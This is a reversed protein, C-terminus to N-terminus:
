CSVVLDNAVSKVGSVGCAASGAADRDHSTPVSGALTVNGDVASVEIHEADVDADRKVTKEVADILAIPEAGTTLAINNSVDQVGTLYRVAEHAAKREFEWNAVGTLTVRGNEITAHVTDPVWVHWGLANVVATAIEADPRFHTGPLTVELEEAIALVGSVRQAAQEAAKKQAYYPVSGSLTVIGDRAAVSIEASTVTPESQLEATVDNKLEADTKM